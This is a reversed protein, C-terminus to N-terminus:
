GPKKGSRMGAQRRGIAARGPPGSSRAGDSAGRTEGAARREGEDDVAFGDGRGGERAGAAGHRARWRRRGVDVGAALPAVPALPKWPEIMKKGAGSAKALGYCGGGSEAAGHDAGARTAGHRCSCSANRIAACNATFPSLTITQFVLSTVRAQPKARRQGNLPRLLQADTDDV